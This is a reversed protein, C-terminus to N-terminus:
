LAVKQLLSVLEDRVVKFSAAHAAPKSLVIYVGSTHTDKSFNSLVAYLRRRLRNRGIATKYVKKGVVVSGHFSESKAYVLTFYNGHYRRGSKFHRDFEARTLRQARQLM